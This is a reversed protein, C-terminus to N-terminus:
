LLKKLSKKAAHVHFSVTSERCEMIRAAEAHSKDQAYVLLMADRQREPLERVAGWLENQLTAQEQEAPVEAASTEALDEGRRAQRSRSRQMDHVANLVVRYLWSSFAARGDYSGVIRALKVVVDQAIDEADERNGCWKFAVRFIFDYHTDILTQFAQRDGGAALRALLAAGSAGAVGPEDGESSVVQGAMPKKTM